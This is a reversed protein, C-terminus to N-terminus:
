EVVFYSSLSFLKTLLYFCVYIIPYFLVVEMEGDVFLDICKAFLKIRRELTGFLTKMLM